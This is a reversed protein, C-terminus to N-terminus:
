KPEEVARHPFGASAWHASIDSRRRVEWPANTLLKQCVTSSLDHRSMGWCFTIAHFQPCFTSPFMVVRSVRVMCKRFTGVGASRYKHSTKPDSNDSSFQNHNLILEQAAFKTWIITNQFTREIKRKMNWVYCKISLNTYLSMEFIQLEHCKEHTFVRFTIELDNM